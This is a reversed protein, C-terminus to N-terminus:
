CRNLFRILEQEPSNGEQCKRKVMSSVPTVQPASCSTLYLKEGQVKLTWKSLQFLIKHM